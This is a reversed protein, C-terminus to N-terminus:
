TDTGSCSLPFMGSLRNKASTRARPAPGRLGGPLDVEAHLRHVGVAGVLAEGEGVEVDVVLLPRFCRPTPLRPPRAPQASTRQDLLNRLLRRQDLLNRLLVSTPRAPQAAVPRSGLVRLSRKVRENTSCTACCGHRSGWGRGARKRRKASARQDLLNRLLRTSVGVWSGCAQPATAAARQDLLNRLLRTSVGVWSGCAQPATTTATRRFNDGIGKHVLPESGRRSDTARAQTSGHACCGGAPGPDVVESGVRQEGGEAVVFYAAALGVEVLELEGVLPAEQVGGGGVGAGGDPAAVACRSASSDRPPSPVGRHGRERGFGEAEGEADGGAGRHGQHGVGEVQDVPERVGPAAGLGQVDREPPGAPDGLLGVGQGTFAAAWTSRTSAGRSCM